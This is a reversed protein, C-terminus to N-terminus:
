YFYTRKCAHRRLARMDADKGRLWLFEDLDAESLGALRELARAREGGGSGAAAASDREAAAAARVAACLREGVVITAARLDLEGDGPPLARGADIAAALDPALRLVGEARLVCPLVNDAALTLAGVDHFGFQRPLRGAFRRHLHAAALQAKKLVRVAGGGRALEQEDRFPPFAAALRGVLAAASPRWGASAGGGGASSAAAAEEAAAGAALWAALDDCGRNRLAAGAENLARAVLRALPALPGPVAMRIGPSVEEDADLALEFAAAVSAASAGCLGGATWLRAGGIHSAVVGRLMTEWAGGAGAGRAHLAERWGSGFNLLQLLLVTGVEEAESAWALPLAQPQPQELLARPPSAVLASSLARLAADDVTVHPSSALALLCSARVCSLPCVPLAAM